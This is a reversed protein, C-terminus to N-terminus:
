GILVGFIWFPSFRFRWGVCVWLWRRHGVRRRLCAVGGRRRRGRRGEGGGLGGWGHGAVWEEGGRGVRVIRAVESGEGEGEGGGGEDEGGGEEEEVRGGGADHEDM